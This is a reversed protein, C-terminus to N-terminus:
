LKKASINALSPNNEQEESGTQLSYFKDNFKDVFNAQKRMSTQTPSLLSDPM